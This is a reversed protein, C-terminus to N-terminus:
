DNWCKRTERAIIIEENAKIILIACASKEDAINGERGGVCADNKKPDCHINLGALSEIIKGRIYASNEGIGGTFVLADLRWDIAALLAGISKVIRACFVDLAIQARENGAGAQTIIERLDRSVGSLGLLGSQKNLLDQTENITLSDQEMLRLPLSPDLDGCRTGMLLGELPTFGM